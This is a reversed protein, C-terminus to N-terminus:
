KLTSKLLLVSNIISIILGVLSVFIVISRFISIIQVNVGNNINAFYNIIDWTFKNNSLWLVIGAIIRYIYIKETEM